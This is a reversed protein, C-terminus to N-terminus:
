AASPWAPNPAPWGTAEQLELILTLDTALLRARPGIADQSLEVLVVSDRKALQGLRSTAWHRVTVPKTVRLTFPMGSPVTPDDEAVVADLVISSEEVHCFLLRAWCRHGKPSLAPRRGPSVARAERSALRSSRYCLWLCFGPALVSGSLGLAVVLCRLIM